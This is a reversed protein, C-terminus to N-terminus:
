SFLAKRVHNTVDRVNEQDARHQPKVAKRPSNEDLYDLSHKQGRSKPLPRPPTTNHITMRLNKLQTLKSMIDRADETLKNLAFGAQPHTFVKFDRKSQNILERCGSYFLRSIVEDTNLQQQCLQLLKNGSETFQELQEAIQKFEEHFMEIDHVIQEGQLLMRNVFRPEMSFLGSPLDLQENCEYKLFLARWDYVKTRFEKVKRNLNAVYYDAHIKITNYLTKMEKFQKVFIAYSASSTAANAERETDLLKIKSDNIQTSLQVLRQQHEIKNQILMRLHCSFNLNETQDVSMLDIDLQTLLVIKDAVSKLEDAIETQCSEILEMCNGSSQQITGSFFSDRYNNIHTTIADIDCQLEACKVDYSEDDSELCHKLYAKLLTIFKTEDESTTLRNDINVYKDFPAALHNCCKLITYKTKQQADATNNLKNTLSQDILRENLRNLHDIAFEYAALDDKKEVTESFTSFEEASYHAQLITTIIGFLNTQRDPDQLLSNYRHTITEFYNENTQSVPRFFKHHHSPTADWRKLTAIDQLVDLSLTTPKGSLQQLIYRGLEICYPEATLATESPYANIFNSGILYLM